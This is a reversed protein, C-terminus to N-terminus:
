CGRGFSCLPYRCEPCNLCLGGHGLRTLEQRTVAEGALIRPLVLDFVTAKHYMVCGPLGLIPVKDLYALLFMAGPFLPTGYTVITAGTAKVGGPTSDDPDVSMGGTVVIMEAGDKILQRISESIQVPNDPSLVQPMVSCGLQELKGIVVPGFRDKIRGHYVENGTTIVGTVMPKLPKIEIVPTSMQCIHEVKTIKDEKIVLPIVRSGAVTDGKKVLQNTHRTAVVVEEIDNINYLTETNIKLLGDHSAVLNVKGERPESFEIGDGAAARSIRQAAENEHLYGEQCEWIYIHEKGIKLLEEIDEPQIIHGKNFAPGKYEGPVIKTLDHCLIMGVANETKVKRM